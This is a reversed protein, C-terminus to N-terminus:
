TRYEVQKTANMEDCCGTLRRQRRPGDADSFLLPESLFLFLRRWCSFLRALAFFISPQQRRLLSRRPRNKNKVCRGPWTLWDPKWNSFLRYSTCAAANFYCLICNFTYLTPSSLYSRFPPSSQDRWAALTHVVTINRHGFRRDCLCVTGEKKAPCELRHQLFAALRTPKYHCCRYARSYSSYHSYLRPWRLCYCLLVYRTTYFGFPAALLLLGAPLEQRHMSPSLHSCTPPWRHKTGHCCAAIM